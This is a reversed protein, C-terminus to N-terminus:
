AAYSHSYVQAFNTHRCYDEWYRLVEDIRFGFRLLERGPPGWILSLPASCSDVAAVQSDNLDGAVTFEIVNQERTEDDIADEVIDEDVHETSTEEDDTIVRYFACSEERQTLLRLLADMM